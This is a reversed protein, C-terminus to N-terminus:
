DLGKADEANGSRNRDREGRERSMRDLRGSFLAPGARRVREAEARAVDRVDVGDDTAHLGVPRLQARSALQREVLRHRRGDCAAALVLGLSLLSRLDVPRSRWLTAIDATM